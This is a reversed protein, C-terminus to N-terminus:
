AVVPEPPNLECLQQESSATSSSQEGTEMPEVTDHGMASSQPLSESKASWQTTYPAARAERRARRRARREEMILRLHEMKGRTAQNERSLSGSEEMYELSSSNKDSTNTGKKPVTSGTAEVSISHGQRTHRRYQPTACLLDNLIHIITSIDRKPRGYRDQLAPNLTGSFTGSYVGKGHHHMSEIIAGQRRGGRPSDETADSRSTLVESSLQKLTQTLNRSAEALARTDLMPKAAPTECKCGSGGNGYGCAHTTSAGAATAAATTTSASSPSSSPSPTPPSSPPTSTSTSPQATHFSSSQSSSSSPCSLSSSTTAVTAASTSSSSSSTFSPSSTSAATPCDTSSTVKPLFSAAEELFKLPSPHPSAAAAPCPAPSAPQHVSACEAVSTTTATTFSSSRPSSAAVPAKAFGSSSPISPPPATRSNTMMPDGMGNSGGASSSSGSAAAAAAAASAAASAAAAAIVSSLSPSSAIVSSLSPAALAPSLQAPLGAGGAYQVSKSLSASASPSATFASAASPSPTPTAAAASTTTSSSTAAPASTSSTSTTSSSTATTSSSSTGGSSRRSSSPTVTSLQLQILMMHDGLRMTLNLPAKGSLFDNVQTDNLSELAQMVSQEPRQALLGTEVSPLLTLRSGDMLQNEQLTGERLQRDRHLLCIREKPVKLKKSILKKFNEVSETKAVQLDFQGGTTPTVRVTINNASSCGCGPLSNTATEVTSTKAPDSSGTNGGGSDM